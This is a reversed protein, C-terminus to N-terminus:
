KLPIRNGRTAQEPTMEGEGRLVLDDAVEAVGQSEVLSAALELRVLPM